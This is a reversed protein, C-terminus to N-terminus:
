CFLKWITKSLTIFLPGSQWMYERRVLDWHGTNSFDFWSEIKEKMNLIEMLYVTVESCTNGTVVSGNYLM